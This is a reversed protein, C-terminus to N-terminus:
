KELSLVVVVTRSRQRQEAALPGAHPSSGPQAEQGSGAESRAQGGAEGDAQLLHLGHDLEALGSPQGGALDRHASTGALESRGESCHRHCRPLM